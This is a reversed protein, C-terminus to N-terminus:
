AKGWDKADPCDRFHSVAYRKGDRTQVTSIALPVARGLPTRAWIIQANCSRCHEIQGTPPIEYEHARGAPAAEDLFSAQQPTNM